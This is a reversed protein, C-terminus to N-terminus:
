FIGQLNHLHKQLWHPCHARHVHISEVRHTLSPGPTDTMVVEPPLEWPTHDIMPTEHGADWVQLHLPPPPPPNTPPPPCSICHHHHNPNPGAERKIPHAYLSSNESSNERYAHLLNRELFCVKPPLGLSLTIVFM